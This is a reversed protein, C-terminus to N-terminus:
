PADPLPTFRHAQLAYVSDLNRNRPQDDRDAKRNEEDDKKGPRQL